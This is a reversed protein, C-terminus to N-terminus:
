LALGQLIDSQGGSNLILIYTVFTLPDALLSSVGFIWEWLTCDYSHM